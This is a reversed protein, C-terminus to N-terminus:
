ASGFVSGNGSFAIAYAREVFWARMRDGEKWLYRRMCPYRKVSFTMARVAIACGGFISGSGGSVGGVFGGAMTVVAGFAVRDGRVM